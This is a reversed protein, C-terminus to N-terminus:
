IRNWFMILFGMVMIKLNTYRFYIGFDQWPNVESCLIMFYLRICFYGCITLNGVQMRLANTIINNKGIFRKFEESIHQTSFSEFYTVSKGNGCFGIWLLLLDLAFTDVDMVTNPLNNPSYIGKWTPKNQLYREKELNILPHHLM